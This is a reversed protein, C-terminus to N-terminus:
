QIGLRKKEEDTYSVKLGLATAAARGADSDAFTENGKEVVPPTYGGGLAFGASALLDPQDVSLAGFAANARKTIGEETSDDLGVLQYMKMTEEFLKANTGVKARVAAAVTSDYVRKDAEANRTNAEALALGNEYIQRNAADLKAVQEDSLKRFGKFEDAREKLLGELRQKETEAATLKPEFEGRVAIKAAEVEEATFVEKEEGDIEVKM